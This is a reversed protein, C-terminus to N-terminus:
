IKRISISYNLRRLGYLLPICLVFSISSILVQVLTVEMITDNNTLTFKGHDTDNLEQKTADAPVSNVTTNCLGHSKYNSTIAASTDTFTLSPEPCCCATDDCTGNMKFTGVWNFGISTM